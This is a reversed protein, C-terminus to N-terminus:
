MVEFMQLPGNNTAVVIYKKGKNKAIVVKRADGEVYMGHDRNAIYNFQGNGTGQLYHGFSADYNGIESDATYANGVLILDLNGDKNLDDIAIDKVPSIQCITPLAEVRFNSNGDNWIIASQFYNAQRQFSADIKEKPFIDFIDQKAFEAYSRYVSKLSVMQELVEDRNHLLYPKGFSYQTIIPDLNTDGDFDAAYMKVPEAKTGKIRSNLGLNGAVFDMDGDGDLDAAKICNWWGSYDNLIKDETFNGKGDNKLFIIPSWEGVAVLDIAKDGNYDVATIDKIIGYQNLKNITANPTEVWNGNDNKLYTSPQSLPYNSHSAAGGLVVDQDGDGDFDATAICSTANPKKLSNASVKGNKYTEDQYIASPSNHENSGNALYVANNIFAADVTEKGKFGVPKASSNKGINSIIQCKSEFASGLFLEDNGDGNEDFAILAPGERSLMMPILPEIKFDIYYNEQHAIKTPINKFLPKAKDTKKSAVSGAQKEIKHKKGTALDKLEKKTGDMWTITANVSQAKDLGFHVLNGLSSMFGREPRYVVCQSGNANTIEICTNRAQENSAFEFQIYNNKGQQVAQNEYVFAPDNINNIIIDLDGDNDFDAYVAGNSYSQQTLGWNNSQDSFELGNENKFLYNRLKQQPIIDFVEMSNFNGFGGKNNIFRPLTYQMFDWNSYDRRFGNCVLLDKFGDNDFDAFLTAWSWDTFAMNALQGIESFHGNGQNLQLTNRKYQYHYGNEVHLMVKEYNSPPEHTKRRYNDEPMMDVVVIDLLGDNNFDQIDAGMAFQSMHEFYQKSRNTFTGNKNNVYLFDPMWYDNAIYMDLWGDENIDVVNISLGFAAAKIGAKESVDVFKGGKNEYLHNTTSETYKNIKEEYSYSVKNRWKDQHNVVMLDLDGDNDYDFFAAHTTFGADAIGYKKAQEEFKFDGKNIFLLNERNSESYRQENGSAGVYIDQLGDNNIDVITVGTCWKKPVGINAVDSMDKFQMNGTNKYIKNKVQNGAFFVDELGDNDFDAVGIGAGNYFYEYLLFNSGEVDKLQNNFNIGTSSAPLLNFLSPGTNEVKEAQKKELNKKETQPESQCAALLLLCCLLM